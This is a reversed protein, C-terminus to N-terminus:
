VAILDPDIEKIAEEVERISEESVHATGLIYIDCTNHGNNIRM